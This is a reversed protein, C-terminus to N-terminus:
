IEIFLYILGLELIWKFFVNWWLEPLRSRPVCQAGFRSVLCKPDPALFLFLDFIFLWFEHQLDRERVMERGPFAGM